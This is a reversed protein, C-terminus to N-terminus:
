EGKKSVTLTATFPTEYTQLNIPQPSETDLPFLLYYGADEQQYNEIFTPLGIPITDAVLFLRSGRGELCSSYDFGSVEVKPPIQINPGFLVALESGSTIDVLPIFDPDVSEGSNIDILRFQENERDFLHGSLMFDFKASMPGSKYIDQDNIREIFCQFTGSTTATGRGAIEGDSLVQFLGKYVVKGLESYDQEGGSVDFTFILEYDWEGYLPSEPLAQDDEAPSDIDPESVGPGSAQFTCASMSAVFFVVLLPHIKNRM